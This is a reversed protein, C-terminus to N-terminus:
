RKAQRGRFFREFGPVGGHQSERLQAEMVAGQLEGVSAHRDAPALSLAKMAIAILTPPLRGDPLHRPPRDRVAQEPPTIDGSVVKKMVELADGGEIPARLTLIGYLIAGLAYVDTRADVVHSRGDAQEPSMYHPTGIAAGETTEIAGPSERRLSHVMTRTNVDAGFNASQGLPKALGWDMVVTEGFEGLMVNDPKLDRHVVGKSHAFAIADCIKQFIMMLEGLPYKELAAAREMRLAGLVSTLPKGRVLKMVYYPKDLENVNLDYVPVINPHELQATVQAEEIFRAVSEPTKVDLLVKMAVRRRTARDEAELVAGMGGAAILGHLKYKGHGRLEPPLYRHLAATQPALSDKADDLTIRRLRLEVDGVKVEQSPFIMMSEDAKKGGVRTGNSSGLDQIIWDFYNLVLRAHHRSVKESQVRIPVNEERGILYDGPPLVARFIERGERLAVVETQPTIM